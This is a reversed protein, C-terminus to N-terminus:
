ALDIQDQFTNLAHELSHVLRQPLRDRTNNLFTRFYWIQDHPGASFRSLYDLGDVRVDAVMCQLNHLKDCAAVLASEPSVGSLHDLYRQKRIKWDSKSHASDNPLTDTCDVVIQAAAHGVVRQLLALDVTDCDELTDHCLGALCQDISGGHELVLGAVQLLHSVYPIRSGKRTQGSHHELVFACTHAICGQETPTM